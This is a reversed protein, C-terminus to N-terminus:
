LFIIDFHHDEIAILAVTNKHIKTNRNTSVAESLLRNIDNKPSITSMIQPNRHEFLGALILYLSWLPGARNM